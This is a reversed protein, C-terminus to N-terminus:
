TTEGPQQQGSSRRNIQRKLAGRLRTLAAVEPGHRHVSNRLM